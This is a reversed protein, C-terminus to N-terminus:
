VEGKKVAQHILLRMVDARNLTPYKTAIMNDFDVLLALPTWVQVVVKHEKNKKM